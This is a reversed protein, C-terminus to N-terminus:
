LEWSLVKQHGNGAADHLPTDNDLGQVNVNAGAKLLQRAVEVCGHNCAEHLPTWGLLFRTCSCEICALANLLGGAWDRVNVDAGAKILRKAYKVDGRKAALHLSTEGRDNRKNVKKDLPTKKTSSPSSPRPSSDAPFRCKLSSCAVQNYSGV